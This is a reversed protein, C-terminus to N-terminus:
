SAVASHIRTRNARCHSMGQALLVVTPHVQEVAVSIGPQYCAQSLLHQFKADPTFAATSSLYNLWNAGTLRAVSRRGSLHIAQERFLFNVQQLYRAGEQHTLWDDYCQQVDELWRGDNTSHRRRNLLKFCAFLLLAFALTALVWWGPALPWWGIAEPLHLDQLQELQQATLGVPMEATSPAVKDM